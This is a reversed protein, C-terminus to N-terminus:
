VGPLATLEEEVSYNKEIALDLYDASLEYGRSSRQYLRVVPRFLAGRDCRVVRACAGSNLRVKAGVPYAPVCKLFSNLIERKFAHRNEDIILRMATASSLPKRFSRAHTLAEYMDVLGLLQGHDSLSKGSLRNPYGSGDDREHELAAIDGFFGPLARTAHLIKQSEIPHSQLERKQRMSLGDEQQLVQKIPIMGVDHLCGLLSLDQLFREDFDLEQGLNVMLFSVNVSHQALSFPEESSFVNGLIEDANDELSGVVESSIEPLPGLDLLRNKELRKFILRCEDMLRQYLGPKETQTQQKTAPAIMEGRKQSADATAIPVPKHTEPAMATKQEAAKAQVTQQYLERIRVM